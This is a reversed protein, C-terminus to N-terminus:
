TVLWEYICHAEDVAIMVLYQKIFQESYLHKWPGTAATEPSM